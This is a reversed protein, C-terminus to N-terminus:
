LVIKRLVSQLDPEYTGLWYYKECRLDVQMYMGQALGAAVTVWAYGENTVRNLWQRLINAVPLHYILQRGLPPVLRAFMGVIRLRFPINLDENM